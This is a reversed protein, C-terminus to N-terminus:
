IGQRCDALPAQCLSKSELFGSLDYILVRDQGQDIVLLEQKETDVAIGLPIPKSTESIENWFPLELTWIAEGFSDFFVLRGNEPDSTVPGKSPIVAVYPKYASDKSQWMSSPVPYDALAMFDHSVLQVKSNWSDTLYFSGSEGDVTVDVPEHLYGLPTDEGQWTALWEGAVSYSILRHNGTDAVVINGQLDIDVGRPGWLHLAGEKDMAPNQGFIGWKAKYIGMEDFIQLRHNWTDAVVIDGNLAEAAGWPENLQGDGLVLPGSGDPDVCPSNDEALLPCYSGFARILRNEQDLVLIRHNGSDTIVRHGKDSVTISKPNLINRGEYPGNLFDKLPLSLVEQPENPSNKLATILSAADDWILHALDKQVYLDIEVRFPWSSLDYNRHERNFFVESYRRRAEPELVNRLSEKSWNKYSEEPWWILRYLHSVYEREVYPWINEREIRSAVIVPFEFATLEPEPLDYLRANPYDRFYWALPWSTDSDYAVKLEKGVGLEQGLIELESLLKKVDPSAHAYMLYETVYDFNIYNLQYSSRATLISLPLLVSLVVPHLNIAGNRVLSWLGLCLAVIGGVLFAVWRATERLDQLERGGLPVLSLLAVSFTLGTGVLMASVWWRPQNARAMSVIRALGYGGLICMPATIHSLLWPMREGALTYSFWSALTWWVLCLPVHLLIPMRAPRELSSQTAIRLWRGLAKLSYFGGFLSLLFPLYEYFSTLMLYYYWPQSGRQVEQQAIWYGLSGAVGTTLGKVNTFFTSFLLLAIIWFVVWISIYQTFGFNSQWKLPRLLVLWLWASCIAVLALATAVGGAVWQEDVTVPVPPQGLATLIFPALFPLVLSAMVFAADLYRGPLPDKVGRYIYSLLTGMGLAFSGLVFGTIFHNEKSAIGLVMSLSMGLMWRSRGSEIYRFLAYIWWIAFLVVYLDNRIYRSYFLLSPSVFLLIAAMLAGSQGLYRRFWWLSSVLVTGALAPALRATFDNVNNTLWFVLANVHFLFPGHMMPDHVYQGRNWLHFSYLAHLSEDHSM